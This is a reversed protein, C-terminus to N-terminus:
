RIFRRAEELVLEAKGASVADVAHLRESSEPDEIAQARAPDALWRETKRPSLRLGLTSTNSLRRIRWLPVGLHSPRM